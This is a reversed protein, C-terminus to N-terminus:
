QSLEAHLKKGYEGLVQETHRSLLSSKWCCLALLVWTIFFVVMSGTYFPTARARGDIEFPDFIEYSLRDLGFVAAAAVVPFMFFFGRILAFAVGGLRNVFGGGAGAPKRDPEKLSRVSSLTHDCAAFINTSLLSHFILWRQGSSYVHEGTESPPSSVEGGAYPRPTDTARLLSGVTHNERRTLLLLWLSLVFLVSTGLVAADDVSARIGLLTVTVNRSAAWDKLAQEALVDAPIARDFRRQAQELVWESDYSLYANYAAFLMMMSIVAMVGITFRIQSQTAKAGELRAAISEDTEAAWDAVRAPRGSSQPPSAARDDSM